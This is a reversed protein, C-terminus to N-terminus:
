ERGILWYPTRYSEDYMFRKDFWGHEGLYFGQDSSYIFITNKNLNNALLCERLEGVSDDVSRICRLYDKIYRQYKWSILEKGKLNAKIFANNKPQYAADWKARQEPNMRKFAWGLNGTDDHEKVKLDRGLTM